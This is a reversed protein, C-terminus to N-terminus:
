TPDQRTQKPVSFDMLLPNRPLTTSQTLALGPPPSTSRSTTVGAENEDPMPWEMSYNVGETDFRGPMAPRSKATATGADSRSAEPHLQEWKRECYRSPWRDQVGFDLMKNAIIEFKNAEWYVHAAELAAIDENSWPRMRERLRKYRMQLAPVQFPRGFRNEFMKAIEKWPHNQDQKLYILLREEDSLDLIHRASDTPVQALGPVGSPRRKPSRIVEQNETDSLARKVQQSTHTSNSTTVAKTQLKQSPLIPPFANMAPTSPQSRDTSLRGVHGLTPPPSSFISAPIQPNANYEAASASTGGRMPLQSAQPGAFPRGYEYQYRSSYEGQIQAPSVQPTTSEQSVTEGNLSALLTAYTSQM